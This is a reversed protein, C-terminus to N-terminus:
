GKKGPNTVKPLQEPKLTKSTVTGKIAPHTVGKKDEWSIIRVKTKDFFEVKVGASKLLKYYVFAFDESSVGNGSEYRVPEGLVGNYAIQLTVDEVNYCVSWNSFDIVVGEDPKKEDKKDDAAKTHGASILAACFAAASAVILSRFLM